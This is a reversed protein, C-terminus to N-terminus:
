RSAHRLDVNSPMARFSLSARDEDSFYSINEMVTNYAAVLRNYENLDKQTTETDQSVFTFTDAEPIKRHL